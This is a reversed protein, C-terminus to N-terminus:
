STLHWFYGEFCFNSATSTNCRSRGRWCEDEEKKKITKISSYCRYSRQGTLEWEDEHNEYVKKGFTHSHSNPANKAEHKILHIRRRGVLPLDNKKREKFFFFFLLFFCSEQLLKLNKNLGLMGLDQGIWFALGHCFRRRILALIISWFRLLGHFFFFTLSVYIAREKECVGEIWHMSCHLEVQEVWNNTWTHTNQNTCPVPEKCHLMTM